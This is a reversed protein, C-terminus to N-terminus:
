HPIHEGELANYQADAQFLTLEKWKHCFMYTWETSLLGADVDFNSRKKKRTYSATHMVRLIWISCEFYSKTVSLDQSLKASKFM